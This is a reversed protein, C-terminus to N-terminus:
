LRGQNAGRHAGSLLHKTRDERGEIRCHTELAEWDVASCTLSIERYCGLYLVKSQSELKVGAITRLKEWAARNTADDSEKRKTELEDWLNRFLPPLRRFFTQTTAASTEGLAFGDLAPFTLAHLALASIYEEAQKLDPCGVDDMSWSQTRGGDWAITVSARLVRSPGSICAYKAVAYKDKKTVMEQLIAKPLRHSWHKPVAMSRLRVTSGSATVETEPIEQLIEFLGGSSDDDSDSDFIDVNTTTTETPKSEPPQHKHPLIAESPTPNVTILDSLGHLKNTLAESHLREGEPLGLQEVSESDTKGKGPADM